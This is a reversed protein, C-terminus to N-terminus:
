LALQGVIYDAAAGLDALVPINWDPYAALGAVQEEGRGTRVLIGQTGVARATEIDSVADGVMFSISLDLDWEEAAQRLMGPSPKRCACIEQPHHPCFYVADIRGGHAEIEAILRRHIEDVFAATIIGRGVASQNTVMVIKRGTQALKRMAEFTHPFIEVEEWAKVYDPRNEILVGDRDLFIAGQM